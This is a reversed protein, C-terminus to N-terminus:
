GRTFDMVISGGGHAQLSVVAGMPLILQPDTHGFDMGFVVPMCPSYEALARLVAERQAEVYALEGEAPVQGRTLTKPRGLLVCAFNQLLGLEGLSQFFAYVTYSPSFVESSEVFLITGALTEPSPWYIRTALHNALVELCGGFLRGRVGSVPFHVFDWGPACRTENLRDLNARDAWDRYGPTYTHSPVRIVLGNAHFVDRVSVKTYEDMGGGMAFQCLLAGGYYSVVGLEFLFLHMSTCDSYGLFPKPNRVFILPDLHRLVRVGDDGGITAIVAKITTDSFARHLDSARDQPSPHKQQTTPYTVPVMGFEASLRDVGQQMVWPFVAAAGGCPALVCVRSGALVLSGTRKARRTSSTRQSRNRRYAWLYVLAAAGVVMAKRLESEM